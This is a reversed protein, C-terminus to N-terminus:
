GVKLWWQYLSKVDSGSIAGVMHNKDNTWIVGNSKAGKGCAVKGAPTDPSSQYHWTDPADAACPTATFDGTLEEFGKATDSASDFLVYAAKAPGDTASNQGCEYAALIGKAKDDQDLDGAQCNSTDYGKSLMGALAASNSDATATAPCSLACGGVLTATALGRLISVSRSM